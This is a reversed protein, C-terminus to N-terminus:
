CWNMSAVLEYKVLKYMVLEYKGSVAVLEYKVLEYKDSVAVLEYQWWNMTSWNMSSSHMSAVLEYKDSVAVLEYQWWNM